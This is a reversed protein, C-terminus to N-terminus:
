VKILNNLIDVFRKENINFFRNTFLAYLSYDKGDNTELKLIKISGNFIGMYNILTKIKFCKIEGLDFFRDEQLFRGFYDISKVTLLKNEFDIEVKKLKNRFYITVSFSLIIFLFFIALPIVLIHLPLELTFNNIDINLHFYAFILFPISVIFLIDGIFYRLPYYSIKTTLSNRVTDYKNINVFLNSLGELEKIEEERNHGLYKYDIKDNM